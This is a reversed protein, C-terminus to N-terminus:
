AAMPPSHEEDSRQVVTLPAGPPDSAEAHQPGRGAKLIAGCVLAFVASLAFWVLAVVLFTM